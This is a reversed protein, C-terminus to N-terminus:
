LKHKVFDTHPPGAHLVCTALSVVQLPRRSGAGNGTLVRPFSPFVPLAQERALLGRPQEFIRAFDSETVRVSDVHNLEEFPSHVVGYAKELVLPHLGRYAKDPLSTSLREQAKPPHTHYHGFRRPVSHGPQLQANHSTDCLLIHDSKAGSPVGWFETQRVSVGSLPVLEFWFATCFALSSGLTRWHM